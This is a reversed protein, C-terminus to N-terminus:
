SKAKQEILLKMYTQEVVLYYFLFNFLTPYSTFLHIEYCMKPM